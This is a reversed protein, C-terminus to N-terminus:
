SDFAISPRSDEQYYQIRKAAISCYGENREVGIVKDWGSQLCGIIESGSGAYPVFVVRKEEQKPPLLLTSLYTTLAIPKTTPHNNKIRHNCTKEKTSVRGVYFFRSAGGEDTYNTVRGTSYQLPSNNECHEKYPNPSSKSVGSQADLLAATNEDLLVNPPWRGKIRCGGINLCGVGWKAINDVYKGELPKQSLSIPEFAPKLLNAYDKWIEAKEQDLRNSIYNSKTFGGGYLWLLSDKINWGADEIFVSLRHYTRSAGFALMHAGPKVVRLMEEWIRQEPINEDWKHGKFRLAFPPDTLVADFYNDSFLNFVKSVNECYFSIRPNEFYPRM